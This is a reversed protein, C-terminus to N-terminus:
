KHFFSPTKGQSIPKRNSFYQTRSSKEKHRKLANTEMFKQTFSAIIPSKDSPTYDSLSRRRTRQFRKLLHHHQNTENPNSDDGETKIQLRSRDLSIFNNLSGLM